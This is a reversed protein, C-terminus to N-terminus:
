LCLHSTLIPTGNERTCLPPFAQGTFLTNGHRRDVLLHQRGRGVNGEASLWFVTNPNRQGRSKSNWGLLLPWPTVAAGWKGGVWLRGVWGRREWSCILAGDRM